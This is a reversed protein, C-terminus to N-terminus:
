FLKLLPISMPAITVPLVSVPDLNAAEIVRAPLHSNIELLRRKGSKVNARSYFAPRPAVNIRRHPKVAPNLIVREQPM